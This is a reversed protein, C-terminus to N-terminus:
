HEGEAAAGVRLDALLRGRKALAGPVDQGFSDRGIERVLLVLPAVAEFRLYLSQEGVVGRFFNQGAGCAAKQLYTQWASGATVEGAPRLWGSRGTGATGM